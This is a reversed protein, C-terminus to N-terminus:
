NDTTDNQDAIILQMIQTISASAQKYLEDVVVMEKAADARRGVAFYDLVVHTRTAMETAVDRVKDLETRLAKVLSSKRAIPQDDGAFRGFAIGFASEARYLRNRELAVDETQFVNNAPVDLEALTDRLQILQTNQENWTKNQAQRDGLLMLAYHGVSLGGLATIVNLIALVAFIRALGKRSQSPNSAGDAPKKGSM